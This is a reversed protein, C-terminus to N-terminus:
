CRSRPRRSDSVKPGISRDAGINGLMVSSGDVWGLALDAAGLAPMPPADPRKPIVAHAAVSSGPVRDDRTAVWM